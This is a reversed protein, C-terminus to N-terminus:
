RGHDQRWADADVEGAEGSAAVIDLFQALEAVCPHDYMWELEIEIGLEDQAKRMFRLGAISDLGLESFATGASVQGADAGTERRLIDLLLQETTRM